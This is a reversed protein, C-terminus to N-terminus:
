KFVYPRKVQGTKCKIQTVKKTVVAPNGYALSYAPIDKTVVSGAGILSFEGIIIHPLLTVNVGIKAGRKLIPGRMCKTCVPCPDNAMSVGPAIFVGDEIVCFQPIYVNAHIKVNNGIRCGYDIVSNSWISVNDGIINQERVVVNHGTEFNDGIRSGNYIVSGSRIKPSNGISLSKEAIKRATAYGLVVGREIKKNKGIKIYKKM